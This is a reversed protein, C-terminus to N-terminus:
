NLALLTVAVVIDQRFSRGGRIDDKPLQSLSVGLRIGQPSVRMATQPGIELAAVAVDRMSLLDVM